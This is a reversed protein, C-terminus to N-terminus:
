AMNAHERIPAIWLTTNPPNEGWDNFSRMKSESQWVTIVASSPMRPPLAIGSFAL